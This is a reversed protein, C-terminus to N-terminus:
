RTQEDTRRDIYRDIGNMRRGDLWGNIWETRRDTGIPKLFQRSVDWPVFRSLPSFIRIWLYCCTLHTMFSRRNWSFPKDVSNSSLETTLRFKNKGIWTDTDKLDFSLKLGVENRSALFIHGSSIEFNWGM